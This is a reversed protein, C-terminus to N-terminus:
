IEDRPAEWARLLDPLPAVAAGDRLAQGVAHDLTDLRPWWAPGGDVSNHWLVVAVGGSRRAAAVADALAGAAAEDSLGRHAYLTTDMVALPVEWLDTARDAAVDYFRFPHATGRRFGEREAFGLTSDIQVGCQRLLRPTAPEAWRLFHTRALRPARGLCAALRDREARLRAPHDHAGYGPHWGVAHGRVRLDRLYNCYRDDLPTPVDEPAWAGGKAFWTARAGHREALDRLALVSRWRADPGLARRLGLRPRGRAAEGALVGLRRTQVADLDHTLALAWPRGGWTRGPVDVGSQRLLHGLARRYADVAPRLPGGPGGELRAQLSAAYPFRGHRDRERTATEQLGALWWAASAVLDGAAEEGSRAAAPLPWREGEVEVWGLGDPTPVSPRGLGDLAAASVPLILAGSPRLGDALPAVADHGDHPSEAATGSAEGQVPPTRPAPPPLDSGARRQSRAGDPGSASVNRGDPLLPASAPRGGGVGGTWSPSEDPVAEGAVVALQAADRRTWEPRLGLGRLLEELGYRVLGAAAPPVDVCCPLPAPDAPM